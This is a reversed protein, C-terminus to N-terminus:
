SGSGPGRQELSGKGLGAKKGAEDM